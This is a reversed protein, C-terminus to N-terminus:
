KTNHKRRKDRCPQCRSATPLRPNGCSTCKGAALRRAQRERFYERQDAM